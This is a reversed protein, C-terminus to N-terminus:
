KKIVKFSQRKQGPIQFLYIGKELQSIEIDTIESTIKGSLVQKGAQDTIFYPINLLGSNTKVTILDVAPNPYVSISLQSQNETIGTSTSVIIIGKMGVSAHPSCVYWHTGVTLKSSSVLGGGFPVSFGGSLPTNGNADWTAQSVEVANHISELVFNVDDGAIITISVPNFAISVNNITWTVSFGTLSYILLAAILTIKKM